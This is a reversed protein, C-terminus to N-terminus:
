RRFKGIIQTGQSSLDIPERHDNRHMDVLMILNFASFCKFRDDIHFM